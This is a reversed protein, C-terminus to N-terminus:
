GSRARRGTALDLLAALALLFLGVHIRLDGLDVFTEVPYAITKDLAAVKFAHREHTEPITIIEMFSRRSRYRMFAGMDWREATELAEVGVMDMASFVASGGSVPHCARRLLERYMHEMYLDMLQEASAGAPAGEVRPPADAHDIVNLMLFPRGTDEEMFARIRARREEDFGIEALRALHTEIEDDRLPGGFDVYWSLFLLYLLAPIGWVLLRRRSM